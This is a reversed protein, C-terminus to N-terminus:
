RAVEGRALLVAMVEARGVLGVARGDEVVAFPREAAEVAAASSAVRAGAAVTGATEAGDLSRLM